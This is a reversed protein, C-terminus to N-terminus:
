GRKEVVGELPGRKKLGRSEVKGCLGKGRVRRSVVWKRFGGLISFNSTGGGKALGGKKGM